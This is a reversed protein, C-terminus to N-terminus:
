FQDIDLKFNGLREKDVIHESAAKLLQRTADSLDKSEPLQAVLKKEESQDLKYTHRYGNQDIFSYDGNRSASVVMRKEAVGAAKWMDSDAVRTWTIDRHQELSHEIVKNIKGKAYSFSRNSGDAYEIHTVNGRVSSVYSETGNPSVSFHDRREPNGPSLWQGNPQLIWDSRQNNQTVVFKNAEGNKYTAEITSGDPKNISTIQGQTNLTVKSGNVNLQVTSGDPMKRITAGPIDEYVVEGNKEVHLNILMDDPAQESTWRILKDSAGNWNARDGPAKIEANSKPEWITLKQDASRQKYRRLTDAEYEFDDKSGDPRQISQVLGANDLEIVASTLKQARVDSNKLNALEALLGNSYHESPSWESQKPFLNYEFEAM